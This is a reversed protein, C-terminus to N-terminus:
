WGNFWPHGNKARFSDECLSCKVLGTQTLDEFLLVKLTLTLNRKHCFERVYDLDLDEYQERVTRNLVKLAHDRKQENKIGNLDMTREKEKRTVVKTTANTEIYIVYASRFPFFLLILISM